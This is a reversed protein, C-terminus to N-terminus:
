FGLDKGDPRTASEIIQDWTKGEERPFNISPGPKDAYSQLDEHICNRSQRM